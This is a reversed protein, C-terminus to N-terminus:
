ISCRGLYEFQFLQNSHSKGNEFKGRVQHFNLDFFYNNINIPQICMSDLNLNQLENYFNM